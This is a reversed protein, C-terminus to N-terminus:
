HDTSLKNKAAKVVNKLLMAVTVPGVGGPVPSIYSAVQSVSQFDADGVIGGNSESTGADIVIAGPKIKQGTILGGKGTASIVVDAANLLEDTNKTNIDAINVNYGKEKLLFTVPKGVLEGQGMVLFNKASLENGLSDLMAIIAAATPPVFFIKGKYFDELNKYGTCDVDVEPDVADLIEQRPMNKPLPLQVILGCMNPEQSINKIQSIIEQASVNAKFNAERFKMGIKEAARAKMAVYQRSAPDDGVLCDCFVPVFPLRSVESKLEALIKASIERGDITM